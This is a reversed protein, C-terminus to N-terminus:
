PTKEEYSISASGTAQARNTAILLHIKELKDSYPNKKLIALLRQRRRESIDLTDITFRITNVYRQVKQKLSDQAAADLHLNKDFRAVKSKPLNDSYTVSQKNNEQAYGVGTYLFCAIVLLGFVQYHKMKLLTDRVM